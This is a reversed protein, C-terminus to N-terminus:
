KIFIAKIKDVITQALKIKSEVTWGAIHPTLLVNEAHILYDFAEPLNEEEFLNEFSLKEYELVDLCAGLVKKNIVRSSELDKGLPKELVVRSFKTILDWRNLSQCINGFFNPSTSLYNVRERNKYLNLLDQLTKYSNSDSFDVTVIYLLKKFKEFFEKNFQNTLFEQLKEKVLTIHEEHTMNKRAVTIIRSEHSFYDDSCLHYLAPMLKRFALDGHGGFLVFDCVKFKSNM